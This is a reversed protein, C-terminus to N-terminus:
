APAKPIGFVKVIGREIGGISSRLRFANISLSRNGTSHVRAQGGAAKKMTGHMTYSMTNFADGAYLLMTATFLQNVAIVFPDRLDTALVCKSDSASETITEAAGVTHEETIYEYNTTRWTAGNDDSVELHLDEGSTELALSFIHVEYGDYLTADLVSTFPVSALVSAVRTEALLPRTNADVYAKVIDRRAAGDPAVTLDTDASDAMLAATGLGLTTRQAAADADDLIAAGAATTAALYGAVTSNLTTGGIQFTGTVNVTSSMVLAGSFTYAGAVTALGVLNGDANFGAIQNESGASVTVEDTLITTFNWGGDSNFGLSGTVQPLIWDQEVDHVRLTRKMDRRLDAIASWARALEINLDAILTPDGPTYEEARDPELVSRIVIVDSVTLASDFTISATDDYGNAYSSTLTWDTRKLGNVYVELGDDDFLRFNLSFPGAIASAVTITNSRANKALTAM